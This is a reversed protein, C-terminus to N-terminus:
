GSGCPDLSSGQTKIIRNMLLESPTKGTTSHPMNRYNMLFRNIERRPDKKEAIATHTVKLMSRMFKEGLGNSQPHEPMCLDTEFGQSKAYERWEGM